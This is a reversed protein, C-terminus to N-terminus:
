AADVKWEKWHPVKTDEPLNAKWKKWAERKAHNEPTRGGINIGKSKPKRPNQKFAKGNRRNSNRVGSGKGKKPKGM